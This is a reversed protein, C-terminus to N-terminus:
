FEGNQQTRNLIKNVSALVQEAKILTLCYRHRGEKCQDPVSFTHSCPVCGIDKQIIECEAGIPRQDRMDCPGAINVVPVGLAAAMYITGTDVAIFLNLRKLAAPLQELSFQGCSNITDGKILKQIDATVAKEAESGIFIIQTKYKKLILDALGAFKDGGCEKLKNGCGASIGILLQASDIKEKQWFNEVAQEADPSAFVQPLNDSTTIDLFGLAKMYTQSVMNGPQHKELNSCFISCLKLTLGGRDPYISIRIPILGWFTALINPTSPILILAADFNKARFLNALKIKDALGKYDGSDIPIIEDIHPNNRIIALALPNVAASIHANPYKRRIERFVPTSCVLDGIKATQIVLIRQISEKKRKATLLYILPATFLSLIFYIM